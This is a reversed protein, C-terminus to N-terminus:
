RKTCGDRCFFTVLFWHNVIAFWWSNIKFIFYMTSCWACPHNMESLKGIELLSSCLRIVIRNPSPIAEYSVKLNLCILGNASELKKELM